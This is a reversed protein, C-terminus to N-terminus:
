SIEDGERIREGHTHHAKRQALPAYAAEQVGEFVAGQVGFVNPPYGFSFVVYLLDVRRTNLISTSVLLSLAGFVPRPFEM